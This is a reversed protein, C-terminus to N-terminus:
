VACTCNTIMELYVKIGNEVKFLLDPERIKKKSVPMPHSSKKKLRKKRIAMGVIYQQAFCASLNDLTGGCVIDLYDQNDLNSVFLEEPRMAQIYGALKKTGVKRRLGQKTKGFLHEPVYNTRMAVIPARKGEVYIVHGFLQNWYKDLYHIVTKASAIWDPDRGTEVIKQLRARFTSLRNKLKLATKITMALEHRRSLPKRGPSEFRLAKRLATFIKEAKGLRQATEVLEANERVPELKKMVTQLTQLEHPRLQYAGLIQELLDYLKICRRYFVLGPLDFPFYEGKLGATYDALWRLLIYTLYRRLQVQDLNLMEHPKDLFGLMEEESITPRTKSYRVLDNRLSKLSSRIKHKNIGATLRGHLDRCLRKGVNELFHYHCVFEVGGPLVKKHAESIRESLDRMLALPADFLQVTRKFILELDFNNEAVMKSVELVLRTKGDIMAFITDTGVECTGDAHLIYGGDANILLKIAESGSYHAGTLYDLFHNSLNNITSSPVWLKFRRFLDQQIEGNQQHCRYRALGVAVVRDFAYCCGPAIFQEIEKCRFTAKCGPCRKVRNIIEPEGIALGVPYRVETWQSRLRIGCNCETLETEAEIVYHKPLLCCDPLPGEIEVLAESRIKM